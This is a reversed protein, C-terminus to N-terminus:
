SHEEVYHRDYFDLFPKWDAYEQMTRLEFLLRQKTNGLFLLRGSAIVQQKLIPSSVENLIILDITRNFFRTFAQILLLRLEFSQTKDFKEPLLVALDIDRASRRSKNVASGFLYLASVKYRNCIRKIKSYEIQSIRM